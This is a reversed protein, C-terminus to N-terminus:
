STLTVPGLLGSPRPAADPAYVTTVPPFLEGSSERAEAILRNMWANAVDVEIVNRGSRLADTVDVRFPETWAVGCDRGNVRVRAVDGVAGLCLYTRGSKRPTVMVETRYTGVGSFATFGLDTWARPPGSWSAADAGPLTLEWRGAVDAVHQHVDPPPADDPLLFVSGLPPLTLMYGGETEPLTWRRVEVPDWVALNTDPTSVAVTVPETRPNTIFTLRHAGLRRGIMPLEAGHVSLEPTVGLGRLAGSLDDTAVVHDSGWLADCLKRHEDADDALSPSGEPRPGVVTAGDAVLKTLRRLARVTM